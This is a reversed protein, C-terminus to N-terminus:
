GREEPEELQIPQVLKSTFYYNTQKLLAFQLKDLMEGYLKSILWSKQYENHQVISVFHVFSNYM